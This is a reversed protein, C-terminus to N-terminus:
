AEVTLVQWIEQNMEMRCGASEILNFVAQPIAVDYENLQTCVLSLAEGWEDHAILERADVVNEAPLSGDVADIVKSLIGKLERRM